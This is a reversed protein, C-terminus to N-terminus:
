DGAGTGSPADWDIAGLQEVLRQAAAPIARGDVTAVEIVRSYDVGEIARTVIGPTSVLDRPIVTVGDGAAVAAQAWDEPESRLMKELRIARRDLMAQIEARFECRLRDVYIVGQLDEVTIGDSSALPHDTAMALVMPEEYLRQARIRPPLPAHRAVIAVDFAGSLLLDYARPGWCDYLVLRTGPEVAQFATLGRGLFGPGITSYIGLNIEEGGEELMERATREARARMEDVRALHTRMTRGFETLSVRGHERLFLPGGLEEELKRIAVTLAPQSVACTEAAKTFNLQDAAALFYRIQYFEM